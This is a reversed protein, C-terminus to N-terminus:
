ETTGVPVPNIEIIARWRSFGAVLAPRDGDKRVIGPELQWHEAIDKVLWEIDPLIQRGNLQADVKIEDAPFKFISYRTGSDYVNKSAM